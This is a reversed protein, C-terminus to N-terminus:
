GEKRKIRALPQGMQVTTGPKLDKVWEAFGPELLLIITSGFEFRGVEEGKKLTHPPSYVKHELSAAGRRNTVVDSDYTVKISGVNTAGVKILAVVGLETQIYTILRENVVFLGPIWKVGWENVPYLQGPIYTSETIKGTLPMHIRHYDRPSLYVTLFSGNIFRDIYKQQKGLLEELTYNIGKAQFLSGQKISGVQSVRGDVPSVLLDTEMAIPRTEPRYERVFFDLLNEFQDIPKKIPALDIQFHKIYLPIFHRSFSKQAIKGVWSSVLKKPISRWFWRFCNAKM